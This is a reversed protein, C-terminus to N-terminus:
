WRRFPTTEAAILPRERGVGHCADRSRDSGPGHALAGDPTEPLHGVHVVHPVRACRRLVPRPARLWHRRTGLHDGLGPAPGSTRCVWRPMGGCRNFGAWRCLILPVGRKVTALARVVLPSYREM